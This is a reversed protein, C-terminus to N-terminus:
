QVFSDARDMHTSVYTQIIYPTIERLTKGTIPHLGPATYYEIEGDKNKYYWILPKNTKEAFFQTAMNVEVKKFNKLKMPDLSGVQTGYKSYPGTDCSVAIYLSDAWAMCKNAPLIHGNADVVPRQNILISNTLLVAGLAVTVTITLVWKRKKTKSVYDPYAEYGLYKCFLDISEALPPGVDNVNKEIYKAFAREITKSSINRNHERSIENEVYSALASKAESVCSKKAKAYVKRVIEAIRKENM